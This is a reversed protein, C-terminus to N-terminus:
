AGVADLVGVESGAGPRGKERTKRLSGPLSSTITRMADAYSAADRRRTGGGAKPGIECMWQRADRIYRSTRRIRFRLLFQHIDNLDLLSVRAVRKLSLTETLPGNPLLHPMADTTTAILAAAAVWKRM